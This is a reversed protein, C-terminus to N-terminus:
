VCTSGLSVIVVVLWKRAKTMNKPNMPDAEEWGVEFRKDDSDDTGNEDAEGEKEGGSVVGVHPPRSSGRSEHSYVHCVFGHGDGYSISRELPAEAYLNTPSTAPYTESAALTNVPKSTAIGRGRITSDGLMRDNSETKIAVQPVELPASITSHM